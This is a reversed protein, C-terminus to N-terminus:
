KFMKAFMASEKKALASSSAKIKKQLQVLDNNQPELLIAAKVDIEAEVFDCLENYAQARRYLAKVNGSEAELVKSCQEVVRKYEKTKLYVAALNLQCTKKIDKALIKVDDPFNKDYSISSVAKEYLKAAKDLNGEKFAANGKDKRVSAFGVKEADSMEWSEKANEFDVLEVSYVVQDAICETPGYAKPDLITVEDKEGRKMKMVALEIGLAPAQGEETIFTAETAEEGLQGYKITVKAGENPHKWDDDPALQIVKRVVMGDVVDEVKCWRLLEIEAELKDESSIGDPPAEFGYAVPKKIKIQCIEGKKMTSIAPKFGKPTSLTPDFCIRNIDSKM